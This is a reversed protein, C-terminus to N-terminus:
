RLHGESVEAATEITNFTATAARDFAEFSSSFANSLFWVILIFGIARFM